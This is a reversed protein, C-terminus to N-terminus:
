AAIPAPLASLLAKAQASTPDLELAATAFNNADESMGEALAVQALGVMSRVDPAESAVAMWEQAARDVLGRKLYMQALLERQERRALQSQELVPLLGVFREGDAARLLTELIVGLLPAGAVPVPQADTAGRAIAAWTEFVVGEATSLGASVARALTAQVTEADARGITSCLEIRVALGAYPDDAPVARALEAAEDWAGRGMLLEALGMRARTNTPAADVALRYQAEAELAAGAQQLVTAVTLRVGAPLADLKELEAAVDGAVVGDRLLATVYPAAVALFDPHNDVCWRLAARAEAAEGLELHLEALALRALFTGSGVMPGYRAPAEGMEITRAFMAKATDTDGHMQAIRAQALVLDTFQPFLELGEAATTDAEILKGVMRLAMVLRTYLAPVYEARTLNGEARILSRATKLEDIAANLDGVVIYESGLNFHLFPTKPSEAAQQRLLEINRGSKEKADRVSGLYGYHTVRVPTQEVRGPIYTPLTHAIQEHLRDKFRYEPRNRFVRLANNVMAGGDGLEGTYSTEVLYFAERWIRGTLTRLQEVDEPVLVEDADLYMVWDGTAAEFSVNRADSFSGTWPFEIVKAGFSKAIEVTADTSGTDVIVIEDVAPAVAALCRPLMQEEDRVIMCLSLTLGTAPKARNAISTARRTLGPVAAHLPRTRRGARKRRGLEELNAEVNPLSSDLRRAARFLAQAADLSWLEYLAVGALNLITPESPTDELMDLTAGAVAVYVRTALGESAQATHSMGADILALKAHFRRQPDTLEDAAAFLASFAPVDGQSLATRAQFALSEFTVAPQGSTAAPTSSQLTKGTLRLAM